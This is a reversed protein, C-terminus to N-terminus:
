GNKGRERAPYILLIGSCLMVKGICFFKRMQLLIWFFPFFNVAIFLVLAASLVIPQRRM